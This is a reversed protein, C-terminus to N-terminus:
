SLQSELWNQWRKVDEEELKQWVKKFDPATYMTYTTKYSCDDNWSGECTDNKIVFFLEDGTVVKHLPMKPAEYHDGSGSSFHRDTKINKWECDRTFSFIEILDYSEGMCSDYRSGCNVDFNPSIKGSLKVEASNIGFFQSVLERIINASKM